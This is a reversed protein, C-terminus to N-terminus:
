TKAPAQTLIVIKNAIAPLGQGQAVVAEIENALYWAEIRHDATRIHQHALISTDHLGRLLSSLRAALRMVSTAFKAAQEDRVAGREISSLAAPLGSFEGAFTKIGRRYSQLDGGFMRDANGANSKQAAAIRQARFLLDELKAKMASTRDCAISLASEVQKLGAATEM